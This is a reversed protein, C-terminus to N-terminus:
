RAEDNAKVQSANTYATARGERCYGLLTMGFRAGMEVALTSPASVAAVFPIRAQYAKFVIEYSLRGSTVLCRAQALNGTELLFGITKDVANHRGIDEFVGLLRGKIAFCAAAHAGGSALFATQQANM